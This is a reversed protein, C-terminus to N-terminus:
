RANAEERNFQYDKTSISIAKLKISKEEVSIEDTIVKVQHKPLTNLFYFIKELVSDQIDLTVRHM